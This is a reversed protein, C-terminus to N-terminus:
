LAPWSIPTPSDRTESPSKKDEAFGDWSPGGSEGRQMDDTRGGPDMAQEPGGV